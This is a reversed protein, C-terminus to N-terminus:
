AFGLARLMLWAIPQLVHALQSLLLCLLLPSGAILASERFSLAPRVCKGVLWHAIFWFAPAATLLLVYFVGLAEMGSVSRAPVIVMAATLLAIPITSLRVWLWAGGKNLAVFHRREWRVLWALALLSALAFLALLLYFPHM